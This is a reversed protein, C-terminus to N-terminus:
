MLFGMLDIKQTLINYFLHGELFTRKRKNSLLKLGDVSLLMDIMLHYFESFNHLYFIKKFPSNGELDCIMNLKDKTEKVTELLFENEKNFSFIILLM